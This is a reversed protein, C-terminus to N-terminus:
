EDGAIYGDQAGWRDTRRGELIFDVIKDQKEGPPAAIALQNGDREVLADMEVLADIIEDVNVENRVLLRYISFGGRRVVGSFRLYGESSLQATVTDGYAVNKLYFPVSQVKYEKGTRVCLLGEWDRSQPYGDADKEIPFWVEIYGPVTM